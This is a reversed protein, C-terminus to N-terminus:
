SNLIKSLLFFHRALTYNYCNKKAKIKKKLVEENSMKVFDNIANSLFTKENSKYLLGGQGNELFETPGNKCDSSIVFTNCMAAEIIVFGPDEWLSSLILASSKKMYFYINESYGM